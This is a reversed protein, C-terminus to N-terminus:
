TGSLFAPHTLLQILEIFTGVTEMRSTLAATAAQKGRPQFRFPTEHTPPFLRRHHNVHYPKLRILLEILVSVSM